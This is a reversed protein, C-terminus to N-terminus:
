SPDQAISSFRSSAAPMTSFSCIWTEPVDVVALAEDRVRYLALSAESHDRHVAGGRSPCCDAVQDDDGRERLDAFCARWRVPRSKHEHVFRVALNALPLENGDLLL